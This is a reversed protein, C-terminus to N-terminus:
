SSFAFIVGRLPLARRMVPTHKKVRKQSKPKQYKVSSISLGQERIAALYQLIALLVWLHEAGQARKPRREEKRKGGDLPFRASRMRLEDKGLIHWLARAFSFRVVLRRLIKKSESKQEKKRQPSGLLRKETRKKKPVEAAHMNKALRKLMRLLADQVQLQKREKRTLNRLFEKTKKTRYERRAMSAGEKARTRSRRKAARKKKEKRPAGSAAEKKKRQRRRTEKKEIKARGAAEKKGRRLRKKKKKKEKPGVSEQVHVQKKEPVALRVKPMESLLRLGYLAAAIGFGAQALPPISERIAAADSWLRPIQQASAHIKSKKEGAPYLFDISKEHIAVEQESIGLHEGRGVSAFVVQEGYGVGHVLSWWALLGLPPLEPDPSKWLGEHTKEKLFNGVSQATEHLDTHLQNAARSLTQTTDSVVRPIVSDVIQRAVTEALPKDTILAVKETPMTEQYQPFIGTMIGRMQSFTHHKGDTATNLIKTRGQGTQPDLLFVQVDRNDAGDRAYPVAVITAGSALTAAVLRTAQHDTSSYLDPRHIRTKANLEEAYTGNEGYDPYFIDGNRIEFRLGEYQSQGSDEQRESAKDTRYRPRFQRAVEVNLDHGGLGTQAAISASLVQYSTLYIDKAQEKNAAHGAMSNEGIFFKGPSFNKSFFDAEGTVRLILM